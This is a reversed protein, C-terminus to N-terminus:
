SSWTCRGALDVKKAEYTEGSEELVIHSALSCAGPSYYLALMDFSEKVFDPRM